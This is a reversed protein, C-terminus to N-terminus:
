HMRGARNTRELAAEAAKRLGGSSNAVAKNLIEVSVDKNMLHMIEILAMKPEALLYASAFGPVGFIETDILFLDRAVERTLPM